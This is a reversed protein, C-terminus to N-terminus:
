DEYTELYTRVDRIHLNIHLYILRLMEYITTEGLFPNHGRKGLDDGSLRDITEITKKRQQDFVQILEDTPFQAFRENSNANHGDIDYEKGVGEGGSVGMDVLRM